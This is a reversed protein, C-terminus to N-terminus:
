KSHSIDSATAPIHFLKTKLKLYFFSKYNLLIFSIAVYMKKILWNQADSCVFGNEKFTFSSNTPARICVQHYWKDQICTQCQVQLIYLSIGFSLLSRFLMLIVIVTKQLGPMKVLLSLKNNSKLVWNNLVFLILM